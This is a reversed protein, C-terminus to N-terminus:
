SDTPIQRGREGRCSLRSMDTGDTLMVISDLSYNSIVAECLLCSFQKTTKTATKQRLVFWIAIQFVAALVKVSFLTHYEKLFMSHKFQNRLVFWEVEQSLRNDKAGM